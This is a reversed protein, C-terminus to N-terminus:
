HTYRFIVAIADDPSQDLLAYAEAAKELHIIQTVLRSPQVERLLQEVLDIRRKKNWRASLEPKITSVQSSSIQIRNRHFRGGFDVSARRTGYWSGVIIRGSFRTFRIAQDLVSPQGSLEFCLDAGADHAPLGLYNSIHQLAAHDGPDIVMQAGLKNSWDRRSQIPDVTILESLEYRDLLSTTLLGVVGQGFVIVIEGLLPSGDHILNVATEMNPLFVADLPDLEKNLLILEKPSAHIFNAHPHFALVNRDKLDPDVEAGIEVVKGVLSYGYRLPYNLDGALTSLSSDAELSTPAQGQYILLETGPSIASFQAQILVQDAPLAPLEELGIELTQPGTFLLFQRRM